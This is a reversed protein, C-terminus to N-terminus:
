AKAQEPETPDTIAAQWKKISFIDFYISILAPFVLVVLLTAALLGFAVAVVLPVLTQIQPSTELIIPVLGMFTTSSSLLIPRFRDRVANVSAHEYDGGELHTEFFTVFLIANNVVIGALSAFGVFSPMSLDMGLVAHGLITGILAFPISLMVALPLTYSRFQFALVMYVGVLGLLLSSLISVQTQNQEQTAGGIRIEVGPYRATIEPGIIDTAVASIATSTTAERDIKGEIRAVALGNKRTIQPYSGTLTIEAISALSTQGAGPVSIPFSELEALTEITGDIQVRVSVTSVGQRFSDTESGAFANRLQTAVAQPTLGISYGYENLKLGIEQRGGTFDQFAETVDDRALFAVLMDNAARELQELDRSHLEVDLDAGGPGSEAQLFNSQVVDPLPGAASRWAALVADASVNRRTSELLDVTITATNSGNDKVDANTAYRVLVREVLPMQDVTGPTLEADVQDLGALLHEVTEITRERPIGSTLAIRAEITDAESAPFGIVKVTGSTVMGITLIFIGVVTGLTLYRWRVLQTVLPIMTRNKFRDLVRAAWRDEAQGEGGGHSLHNPLILFGEILSITLVILLVMPIFKLITGIEGSLFMLPTFVCATTLFSSIVGPMVETAGEIAARMPPLTKRKSAINEAIVISDDMILGVAMLLAILTIINITLGLVSMMFFAGLFSVPLAASIWFSLRLGFFLWMTVFVLVLGMAINEAVLQIREAVVETLNNTIVVSFPDPYKANEEDLMTEVAAFARISDTTKTKAISIIAARQGDIFAEINDDKDVLSVTAVDKLRVMGGSPAQLIILEELDAASRRADSYRLTLSAERTDVLGLPQTFSRASIANVIDQASLNFRRLSTEDFAIRLERDTLGSVNAEAIAPLAQIRDALADAYAILGDKGEIGSVALLAILETQGLITVSPTEAEDPLDGISSVASSIDNYFQTIDGGEELEATAQARGEVSLCSLDTMGTTGSLADELSQCIDEDVDRASAGPYTVTVSVESATFEPFTEREIQFIVSLGVIIGVLMLLNAANPHRVFYSIM